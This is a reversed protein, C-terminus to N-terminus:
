EDIYSKLIPVPVPQAADFLFSQQVVLGFDFSSMDLMPKMRGRLNAQEEQGELKPDGVVLM